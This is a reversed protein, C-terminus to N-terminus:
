VRYPILDYLSSINLVKLEDIDVRNYVMFGSNSYRFLDLNRIEFDLCNRDLQTM